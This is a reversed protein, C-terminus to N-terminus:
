PACSWPAWSKGHPGGNLWVLYGVAINVAPDFLLNVDYSGTVAFLKDKHAEYHIEM